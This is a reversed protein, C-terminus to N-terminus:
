VRFLSYSKVDLLKISHWIRMGEESIECFKVWEGSTQVVGNFNHEVYVDYTVEKEDSALGDGYLILILEHTPEFRNLDKM